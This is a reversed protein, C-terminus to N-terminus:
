LIEVVRLLLSARTRVNSTCYISSHSLSILISLEELLLRLNGFHLVGGGALFLTSAHWCRCYPTRLGFSHNGDLRWLAGVLDAGNLTCGGEL